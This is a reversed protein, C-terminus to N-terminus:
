RTAPEISYKSLPCSCWPSRRIALSGSRRGASGRGWGSDQIARSVLRLTASLSQQGARELHAPLCYRDSLGVFPNGAVMSHTAIANTSISTFKTM